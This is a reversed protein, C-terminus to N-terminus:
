NLTLLPTVVSEITTASLPGFYRSDFSAPNYESMLLVEGSGLVHDKLPCLALSRGCADCPLPTSNTLRVGNVQVGASDITVRDGAVGVLRKLLHTTPSFAVNLYGREKAMKLVSSSPMNVFVLDGKEANKVTVLYLGEPFSKTGNFRLGSAVGFCEFVLAALIGIALWKTLREM